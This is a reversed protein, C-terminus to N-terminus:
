VRGQVAPALVLYYERASELVAMALSSKPLGTKSLARLRSNIFSGAGPPTCLPKSSWTSCSAVWPFMSWFCKGTPRVVWSTLFHFM